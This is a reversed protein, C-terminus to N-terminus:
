ARHCILKVFKRRMKEDAAFPDSIAGVLYATGDFTVTMGQRASVGPTIRFVIQHTCSPHEVIEDARLKALAASVHKGGIQITRRGSDRYREDQQPFTSM